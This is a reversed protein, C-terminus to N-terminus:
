GQQRWDPVGLGQGLRREPLDAETLKKYFTINLDYIDDEIFYPEPM